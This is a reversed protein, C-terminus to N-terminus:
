DDTINFIGAKSVTAKSAFKLAKIEFSMRKNQKLDIHVNNQLTLFKNDDM